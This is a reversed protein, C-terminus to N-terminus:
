AAPDERPPAPRPPIPPSPAAAPAQPPAPAASAPAPPVPAVGPPLPAVPAGAAPAGAAPTGFSRSGPSPAGARQADFDPQGNALMPLPTVGDAYTPWPLLGADPSAPAAARTRPAFLASVLPVLATGVAGLIALSVMIRGYIDPLEIVDVLTLPVLTMVLLALVFLTTALVLARTFATVYRAHVNWLLRQHLLALQIFAVILIFNWVKFAGIWTETPTWILTLGCLLTLVWATMSAVILWPARRSALHADLLAAGAFAALLLITLFAKPIVDGEPSLLVWIVCLIAGAILAGIAVWMAGRLLPPLGTDAEDTIPVNSQPTPTTM